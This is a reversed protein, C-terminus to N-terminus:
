GRQAGTDPGNKVSGTTPGGGLGWGSAEAGAGAWGPLAARGGGGGGATGARGEPVPLALPEPPAQHQLWFSLMQPIEPHFNHLSWQGEGWEWTNLAPM